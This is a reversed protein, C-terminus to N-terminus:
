RWIIQSFLTTTLLTKSYLTHLYLSLMRPDLLNQWLADLNSLTQKASPSLPDFYRKLQAMMPSIANRQLASSPGVNFAPKTAKHNKMPDPGTNLLFELNKHNKLPPGSGRGGGRSGGMSLAFQIRRAESSLDSPATLPLKRAYAILVLIAHVPWNLNTILTSLKTLVDIHEKFNSDNVANTNIDRRSPCHYFFTEM